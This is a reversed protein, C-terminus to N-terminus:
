QILDVLKHAQTEPCAYKRWFVDTNQRKQELERPNNRIYSILKALEKISFEDLTWGAGTESVLKGIETFSMTILPCRNSLSSIARTSYSIERESNRDFVDLAVHCCANIRNYNDTTSTPHAIVHATSTADKAARIRNDNRPRNTNQGIGIIHIEMDQDVALGVMDEVSLGKTWAQDFGGAFVRFTSASQTELSLPEMAIPVSVVEHDGLGNQQLFMKGYEARGVGNAIFAAACSLLDVKRAKNQKLAETESIFSHEVMTASFFDYILKTGGIPRFDPLAAWNLIIVTSYDQNLVSHLRSEQVLRWYRPIRACTADWKAIQNHVLSVKSIIDAQIGLAQFGRYLGLARLGQAGSPLGAGPIVGNCLIGVRTTM